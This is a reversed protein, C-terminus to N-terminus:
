FSNYSAITSASRIWLPLILAPKAASQANKLPKQVITNPIMDNHRIGLAEDYVDNVSVFHM